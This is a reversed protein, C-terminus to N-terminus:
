FLPEGLSEMLGISRLDTKLCVSVNCVEWDRRSGYDRMKSYFVAPFVILAILECLVALIAFWTAFRYSNFKKRSDSFSLGCVNLIFAVATLVVAAIMLGAVAKIYASVTSHTKSVHRSLRYIIGPIGM